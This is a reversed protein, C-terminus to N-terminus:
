PAKALAACSNMWIDGDPWSDLPFVRHWDDGVVALLSMGGFGCMGAITLLPDEDGNEAHCELWRFAFPGM